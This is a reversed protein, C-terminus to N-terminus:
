HIDSGCLAGIELWVRNVSRAATAAGAATGAGSRSPGSLALTRAGSRGSVWHESRQGWGAGVGRSTMLHGGIPPVRAAVTQLPDHSSFTLPRPNMLQTETPLNM